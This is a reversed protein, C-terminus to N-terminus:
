PTAGARVLRFRTQGLKGWSLGPDPHIAELMIVVTEKVGPGAAGLPVDAWGSGPEDALDHSFAQVGNIEVRQNMRGPQGGPAYPDFVQLALPVSAGARALTCSAAATEGPAPDPHFTELTAERHIAIAALRGRDITCHLSGGGGQANLAFQYTRQADVDHAQVWALGPPALTALAIAVTAGACLAVAPRRFSRLRAAEWCGFAIVLIQLATAALFYRGQSVTVAHLAVKLGIALVLVLVASSRRWALFVAAFFLAQLIGLAVRVVVAAPIAFALAAAHRTPPLVEPALLCWYFNEAEGAILFNGTAALIRAAHFAPRRLAERLALRMAQRRLAGVDELLAPEVAAIFPLPDAWANATAGPIYAGLIAAGSHESTLAFRGTAVQRQTAMLLLPLGAALACSALSQWRRGERSAFGAAAFLLPFLVVLMEQRMSVGVAYLLGAAAPTSRGPAILSRAALAGLAVVPPLVWNDQAVVGSFISQGPWLALATGALLRVWLPLVGRWIAFPLIPTLGTVVATALRATTEPSDPVIRLILSLLVPLGPSLNTWYFGGPTLSRDRMLLSFDLLAKFDSVPLVPFATVFTLRPALGLALLLALALGERWPRSEATGEISQERLSM